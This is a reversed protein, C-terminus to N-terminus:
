FTQHTNELFSLFMKSFLLYMCLAICMLYVSSNDFVLPQVFNLFPILISKHIKFFALLMFVEFLIASGFTILKIIANPCAYVDVFELIPPIVSFILHMAGFWFLTEATRQTIRGASSHAVKGLSNLEYGAYELRCVPCSQNAVKEYEKLCMKCFVHQSRCYFRPDEVSSGFQCIPCEAFRYESSGVKVYQNQFGEVLDEEACTIELSALSQKASSYKWNRKMMYGEIQKRAVTVNASPKAIKENRLFEREFEIPEVDNQDPKVPVYYMKMGLVNM